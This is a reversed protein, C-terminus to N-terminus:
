TLRGHWARAWSSRQSKTWKRLMPMSSSMCADVQEQVEKGIGAAMALALDCAVNEGIRDFMQDM